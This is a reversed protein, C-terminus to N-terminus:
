FLVYSYISIMTDNPRLLAFFATSLAHSGSIFQNRVLAKEGKLVKAFVREIADRGSDNYGYGTTANFHMENINEERFANIVLESFYAENKEINKFIELCDQEANNVLEELNM